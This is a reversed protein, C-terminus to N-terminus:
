QFPYSSMSPPGGPCASNCFGYKVLEENGNVETACYPIPVNPKCETYTTGDEQFPFICPKEEDDNTAFDTSATMCPKTGIQYVKANHGDGCTEANYGPCPITDCLSDEMKLDEEPVEDLCVCQQGISGWLGLYLHGNCHSSCRSNSVFNFLHGSYRPTGMASPHDWLIGSNLCIIFSHNISSQAGVM